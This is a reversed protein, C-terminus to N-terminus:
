VLHQKINQYLHYHFNDTGKFDPCYNVDIVAWTNQDRNFILDYGFISINLSTSLANSIGDIIDNSPLSMKGAYDAELADPLKTKFDQSNFRIVEHAGYFNPLSKKAVAWNKEGCTYVKVITAEHNVYEQIFLPAFDLGEIHSKNFCLAMEHSSRGGSAKLTKCIVPFSIGEVSAVDSPDELIMTKPTTINVDELDTLGQMIVDMEDRHIVATQADIPDVVIVGVILIFCWLVM